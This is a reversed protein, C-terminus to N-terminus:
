QFYDREYSFELSSISNMSLSAYFKTGEITSKLTECIKGGINLRIRQTSKGLNEERKRIEQEKRELEALRKDHSEFLASVPYTIM